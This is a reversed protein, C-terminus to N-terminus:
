LTLTSAPCFCFSKHALLIIYPTQDTHAVFSQLPTIELLRKKATGPDAVIRFVYYKPAFWRTTEFM